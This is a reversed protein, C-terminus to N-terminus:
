QKTLAAFAGVEPANAVTVGFNKTKIDILYQYDICVHQVIEVPTKPDRQATV